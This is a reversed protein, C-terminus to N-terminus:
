YEDEEAAEENKGNEESKKLIEEIEPSVTAPEKEEKQKVAAIKEAAQKWLLEEAKKIEEVDKGFWADVWTYM